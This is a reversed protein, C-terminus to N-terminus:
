QDLVERVKRILVEPSFPKQLFAIGPDLVGHHVIANDTYGSTFLVRTSPSEEELRSALMKGGMQPMVVDTFLLQIEGSHQRAVYLAEEGNAAELVTYGQKRLTRAALTRVTAEDEVLLITETGRPLAHSQGRGPLSGADAAVRPLYIKFTTGQDVESYVWIHGGSQKVIGFCTALGLGTGKGAEKTTFFPEFIRGKVEETMGIGNDNISLLVYEGAAVEAYQQAYDEDLTVNATEITLKGGGPMADRANVALNLLVQELQGPDAKVQGLDPAPLMVLEIDEGILRRLM